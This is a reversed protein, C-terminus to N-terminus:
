AFPEWGMSVNITDLHFFWEIHFHRAGFFSNMNKQRCILDAWHDNIVSFGKQAFLVFTRVRQNSVHVSESFLWLEFHNLLKKGTVQKVFFGCFHFDWCCDLQKPFHFVIGNLLSTLSVFMNLFQKVVVSCQNVHQAFHNWAFACLVQQVFNVNVARFHKEFFIVPDHFDINRPVKQHNVQFISQFQAWCSLVLPNQLFNEPWFLILLENTLFVVHVCLNQLTQVLTRQELPHLLATEHHILHATTQSTVKIHDIFLLKAFFWQVHLVDFLRTAVKKKYTNLVPALFQFFSLFVRSFLVPSQVFSILKECFNIFFQQYLLQFMQLNLFNDFIWHLIVMQWMILIFVSWWIHWIWCGLSRWYGSIFLGLFLLKFSLWDEFCNEVKLFVDTIILLLFFVFFVWGKVFFVLFEEFVLELLVLGEVTKVLVELFEVEIEGVILGNCDWLNNFEWEM